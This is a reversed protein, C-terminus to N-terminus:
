SRQRLVTPKSMSLGEDHPDDVAAHKEPDPEENDTQDYDDAGTPLVPIQTTQQTVSDGSLAEADEVNAAEGNTEACGEPEIM